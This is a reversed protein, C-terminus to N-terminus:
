RLTASFRLDVQCGGGVNAILVGEVGQATAKVQSVNATADVVVNGNQTCKYSAAPIRYLTGRQDLTGAFTCALNAYTFDFTARGNALQNVALNFFLTYSGNQSPDNCRSYTGAEAGSYNGGLAIATLTQREIAKTVTPLNHQADTYVLTGQYANGANPTFSATGVKTAASNAANWPLVFYTGQTQFLDGTFKSTGDSTLQATYWTPKNDAGYIFFTVFLFADSQVLNAGWGSETPVWWLDTYDVARAPMSCALAAVIAALAPLRRFRLLM